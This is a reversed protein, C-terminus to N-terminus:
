GAGIIVGEKRIEEGTVTRAIFSVAMTRTKHDVEFSINEVSQIREEHLLGETLEDRMEEDSIRKGLFAMFKIGLDPNLFWEGKNTGLAIECCQALEAEDEIMILDGHDDFAIDGDILRFSQM